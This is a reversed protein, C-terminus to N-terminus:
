KSSEYDQEVQDVFAEPDLKRAALAQIRSGINPLVADFRQGLKRLAHARLRWRLGRDLLQVCGPQRRATVLAELDPEASATMPNCQRLQGTPARYRQVRLVLHNAVKDGRPKVRAAANVEVDRFEGNVIEIGATRENTIARAVHALLHRAIVDDAAISKVAHAPARNGRGGPRLVLVDVAAAEDLVDLDAHVRGIKRGGQPRRQALRGVHDHDALHAVGLRHADGEGRRFGPM